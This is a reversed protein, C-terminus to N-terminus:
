IILRNIVKIFAQYGAPCDYGVMRCNTTPQLSDIFVTTARRHSCDYLSVVGMYTWSGPFISQSQCGPQKGYGGNVYFDVHGVADMMGFGPIPICRKLVFCDVSVRSM